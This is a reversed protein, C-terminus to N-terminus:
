GRRLLKSQKKVIRQAHAKNEAQESFVVTGKGDYFRVMYSESIEPYATHTKLNALPEKTFPWM